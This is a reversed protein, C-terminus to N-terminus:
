NGRGASHRAVVIAVPGRENIGGSRKPSRVRQRGIDGILEPSARFAIFRLGPAAEAGTPQMPVGREDLVGLQGVLSELGCRYGTAAIVADVDVLRDGKLRVAHTEFPEIM